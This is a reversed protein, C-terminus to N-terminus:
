FYKLKRKNKYCMAQDTMAQLNPVDNLCYFISVFILRRKQQLIHHLYMQRRAKILYSIPLPGLELYLLDKAVNRLCEFLNRMWMEDVQELM